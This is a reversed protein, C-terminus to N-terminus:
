RRRGLDATVLRHDRIRRHSARDVLAAGLLEAAEDSAVHVVRIRDRDLEHHALEVRPLVEYLAVVLGLCAGDRRAAGHRWSTARARPETRAGARSASKRQARQSPNNGRALAM